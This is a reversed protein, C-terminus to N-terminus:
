DIQTATITATITVVDTGKIGLSTDTADTQDAHMNDKDSANDDFVWKWYITKTQGHGMDIQKDTLESMALEAISDEWTSGDVSYVLPINGTNTEQFVITYKANVESKNVMTFSFSGQTGPAIVRESGDGDVDVNADAYKFLDFTVDTAPTVAIEEENVTFSWKAVRATDSGTATSVYKAFTGSIVSTSLLTAVMLASAFRMMKNKRM